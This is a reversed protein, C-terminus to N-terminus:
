GVAASSAASSSTASSEKLTRHILYALAGISGTGFIALVYPVAPISRDRADPVMWIVFLLLAICLDIFIQGGWGGEMALAIFGTYGHNAVIVATYVTFVAFVALLSFLRLKM